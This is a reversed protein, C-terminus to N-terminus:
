SRTYGYTIILFVAAEILGAGVNRKKIVEDRLRVSQLIFLDAVFYGGLMLVFWTSVYVVVTVLDQTWGHPPGSIVAGAVIGGSLLFGGLSLGCATNHGDLEKFVNRVFCRYILALCVFVAQGIIFWVISLFPNDEWGAFANSIVFATGLYTSAEVIAIAANQKGVVEKNNDFGYLIGWDTVYRSLWVLGTTLFLYKTFGTISSLANLSFNSADLTGLISWAIALAFFVYRIALAPNGNRVLQHTLNYKEIFAITWFALTAFLITILMAAAFFVPGSITELIYM